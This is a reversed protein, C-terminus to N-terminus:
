LWLFPIGPPPVKLLKNDRGCDDTKKPELFIDRGLLIFYRVAEIKLLDVFKFLDLRFM